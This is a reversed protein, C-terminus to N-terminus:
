PYLLWCFYEVYNYSKCLFYSPDDTQHNIVGDNINFFPEVSLFLHMNFYSYSYLEM